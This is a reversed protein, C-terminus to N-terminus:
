DEAIEDLLDLEADRLDDQAMELAQNLSAILRKTSSIAQDMSRRSVIQGAFPQPQQRDVAQQASLLSSLLVEAKDRAANTEILVRLRSGFRNRKRLDM